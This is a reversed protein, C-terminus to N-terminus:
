GGLLHVELELEVGHKAKVAERVREILALVDAYTAGGRNVIFNAHKDSVEAGGWHWGKCGTTEILRAAYDGPPNRFISGANPLELPQTSNRKAIRRKLEAQVAAPDGPQLELEAATVVARRDLSSRRYSFEPTTFTQLPEGAILVEVRKIVDGIEVDTGANMRVAGGVTGPIGVLGEAGSLGALAAERCLSVIPTAGGARVRTGSISVKTFDGILRVVLGPYGEDPVLLNSGFGIITWPISQQECLSLVAALNVVGGIEAYAAASGGVKMSTKPALPADFEIHKGLMSTLSARQEPTFM